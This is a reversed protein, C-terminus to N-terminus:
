LPMIKGQRVVRAMRDTPGCALDDEASTVLPSSKRKIFQRGRRRRPCRPTSPVLAVVADAATEGISRSTGCDHTGVRLGCGGPLVSRDSVCQCARRVLSGM